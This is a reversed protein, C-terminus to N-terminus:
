IASYLDFLCRKKVRGYDNEKKNILGELKKALKIVIQWKEVKRM